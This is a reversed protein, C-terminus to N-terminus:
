KVHYAEIQSMKENDDKGPLSGTYTVQSLNSLIRFVDNEKFLTKIESLTSQQLIISSILRRKSGSSTKM